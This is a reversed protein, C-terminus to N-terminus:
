SYVSKSVNRWSPVGCSILGDSRCSILSWLRHIIHASSVSPSYPAKEAPAVYSWEVTSLADPDPCMRLMVGISAVRGFVRFINPPSIREKCLTILRPMELRDLVLFIKLFFSQTMSRRRSVVSEPLWLCSILSRIHTRFANTDVSYPSSSVLAWLNRLHIECCSTPVGGQLIPSLPQVRRESVVLPYM